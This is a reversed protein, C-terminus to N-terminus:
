IMMERRTVTALKQVGSRLRKQAIGLGSKCLSGKNFNLPAEDCRVLEGEQRLRVLERARHTTQATKRVSQFSPWIASLNVGVWSRHLYKARKLTEQAVKNTRKNIAM